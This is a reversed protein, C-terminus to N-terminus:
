RGVYTKAPVELRDAADRMDSALLARDRTSLARGILMTHAILARALMIAVDDNGHDDRLTDRLALSDVLERFADPRGTRESM